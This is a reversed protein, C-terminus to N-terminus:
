EVKSNVGTMQRKTIETNIRAINRRTNRLISTNELPSIAHNIKLKVLSVKEADLRELLEKDSLDKLGLKNKM